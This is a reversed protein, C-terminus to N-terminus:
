QKINFTLTISEIIAPEGKLVKAKLGEVGGALERELIGAIEHKILSLTDQPKGAQLVKTTISFSNVM